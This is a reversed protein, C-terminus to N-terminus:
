EWLWRGVTTHIEVKFGSVEAATPWNLWVHLTPFGSFKFIRTEVLGKDRLIKIARDFQKPSIRCEEWWEERSKALWYKGEREIRLRNRGKSSPLFWFIIQSLLIGTVLDGSLDIYCRKVDITDRSAAELRQFDEVTRITVETHEATVTM